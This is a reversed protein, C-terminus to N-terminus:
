LGNRVAGQPDRDHPAPRCPLMPLPGARPRFRDRAPFLGAAASSRARSPSRGTRAGAPQSRMPPARRVGVEAGRAPGTETGPEPVRRFGAVDRPTTTAASRYRRIASPTKDFEDHGRKDRADVDQFGFLMLSPHGSCPEAMVFSPTM